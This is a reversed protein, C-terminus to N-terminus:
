PLTQVSGLLTGAGNPLTCYLIAYGAGVGTLIGERNVTFVAEDSSRWLCDEPEVGKGSPYIDIKETEGVKVRIKNPALFGIEIEKHLTEGNVTCRVWETGPKLATIKGDKSVSLCDSQTESWSAAWNTAKLKGPMIMMQMTTGPAIISAECVITPLYKVSVTVTYAYWGTIKLTHEGPSLKKKYTVNKRGSLAMAASKDDIYTFVNGKRSDYHSAVVTMEANALFYFTEITDTPVWHNKSYTKSWSAYLNKTLEATEM